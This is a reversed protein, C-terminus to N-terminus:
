EDGGGVTSADEDGWFDVKWTQHFYSIIILIMVFCYFSSERVADLLRGNNETLSYKHPNRRHEDLLHEFDEDEKIASLSGPRLIEPVKTRKQISRAYLDLQKEFSRMIQMRALHRESTNIVLWPLYDCAYAHTDEHLRGVHDTHLVFDYFIKLNTDYKNLAVFDTPDIHNEIEALGERNHYVSNADLWSHLDRAFEKHALRKGLCKSIADRSTVFLLKCFLIGNNLCDEEFDHFDIYRKQKMEPPLDNFGGYVFDGAPGRDWVLASKKPKGEIATAPQKFRWMWPKKKEEETPPKNYQVTSMDYGAEELARMILGGTSSKGACDLGEFYIIVGRPAVGERDMAVLKRTLHNMQGMVQAWRRNDRKKKKPFRGTRIFGKLSALDTPPTFQALAFVSNSKYGMFKCATDYNVKERDYRFKLAAWEQFNFFAGSYTFGKVAADIEMRASTCFGKSDYSMIDDVRKRELIIYRPLEDCISPGYPTCHLFLVSQSERKRYLSYGGYGTGFLKFGIEELDSRVKENDLGHGIATAITKCCELLEKDEATDTYAGSTVVFDQVYQVTKWRFNMRNWAAYTTQRGIRSGVFSSSFPLIARVFGMFIIIIQWKLGNQEPGIMSMALPFIAYKCSWDTVHRAWWRLSRNGMFALAEAMLVEYFRNDPTAEVGRNVAMYLRITRTFPQVGKLFPRNMGGRGMAKMAKTANKISKATNAELKPLLKDWNYYLFAFCAWGALRVLLRASKWWHRFNNLRRFNAKRHRKGRRYPPKHPITKPYQEKELVAEKRHFLNHVLYRNSYDNRYLDDITVTTVNTRPGQTDRPYFPPRSLFSYDLVPSSNQAPESSNVSPDEEDSNISGYPRTKSSSNIHRETVSREILKDKEM